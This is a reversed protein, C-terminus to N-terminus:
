PGNRKTASALIRDGVGYDMDVSSIWGGDPQEVHELFNCMGVVTIDVKHKPSSVKALMWWPPPDGTPQRDLWHGDISALGHRYYNGGSWNPETPSPKTANQKWQFDIRCRDRINEGAPLLVKVEFTARWEAGGDYAAYKVRGAWLQVRVAAQEIGHPPDSIPEVPETVLHTCSALVTAILVQLMQGFWTAKKMVSAVLLFNLVVYNRIPTWRPM